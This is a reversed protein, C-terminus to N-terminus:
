GGAEVEILNEYPDYSVSVVGSGNVLVKPPEPMALTGSPRNSAYYESIAQGLSKQLDEALM